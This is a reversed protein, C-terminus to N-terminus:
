LLADQAARGVTADLRAGRARAQRRAPYLTVLRPDSMRLRRLNSPIGESSVGPPQQGAGAAAPVSVLRRSSWATLLRDAFSELTQLKMLSNRWMTPIAGASYHAGALAGAAGAVVDAAGGLNAAALVADRFNHTRAFCDLAAALAAPASGEQGLASPRSTQGVLAEAAALIQPKGAGSLAAHLAAALARCAALV